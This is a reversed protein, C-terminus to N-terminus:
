AGIGATMFIHVDKIATVPSWVPTPIGGIIQYTLESAVLSLQLYVDTTGTKGIVSLASSTANSGLLNYQVNFSEASYNILDETKFFPVLPFFLGSEITGVTIYSMLGPNFQRVDLPATIPLTPDGVIWIPKTFPNTPETLSYDVLDFSPIDPITKNGLVDTFTVATGNLILVQTNALATNPILRLTRTWQQVGLVSEYQYLYLYEDDSSKLNIYLDKVQVQKSSGTALDLFQVTPDTPKGNGTFIYTGRIGQQGVGINVDISSPGGLITLEESSLLVDVM